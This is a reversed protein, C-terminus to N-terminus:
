FDLVRGSPVEPRAPPPCVLLHRLPAYEHPALGAAAAFEAVSAFGRRAQRAAVVRGAREADFGPLAALHAAGATNVDVPSLADAKGKGASSAVAAQPPVVVAPPPSSPNFAPPAAFASPVAPAPVPPPALAGPPYAAAPRGPAPHAYWPRYGARWRLWPGNIVFAHVVGAVWAAFWVGFFWDSATSEKGTSGVGLFGAWGAILYGVGSLWWAPRRARVGVYLFGFGGLCSFGLIPLLMWWSHRLRWWVSAAPSHYPPAAAWAVPPPGAPYPSPYGPPAPPHYPTPGPAPPWGPPWGDPVTSM